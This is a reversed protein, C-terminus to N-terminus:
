GARGLISYVPKLYPYLYTYSELLRRGLYAIYGAKLLAEGLSILRRPLAYTLGLLVVLGRLSYLDIYALARSLAAVVRPSRFVTISSHLAAFILGRVEAPLRWWIRGRLARTYYKSILDRSLPGRFRSELIRLSAEVVRVDVGSLDLDITFRV